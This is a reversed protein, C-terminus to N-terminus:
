SISVCFQVSRTKGLRVDAVGSEDGFTIEPQRTEELSRGDLRTNEDLARLVFNLENLSVDVERPM